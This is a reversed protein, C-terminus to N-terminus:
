TILKLAVMVLPAFAMALLMAVFATWDSVFNSNAAILTITSGGSVTTVNGDVMIALASIIGPTGTFLALISAIMKRYLLMTLSGILPVVINLIIVINIDM